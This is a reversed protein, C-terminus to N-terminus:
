CGYLNELGFDLPSVLWIGLEYGFNGQTHKPVYGIQNQTNKPIFGFRIKPIFQTDIANIYRQNGPEM